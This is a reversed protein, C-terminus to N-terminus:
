LLPAILRLVCQGIRIVKSDRNRIKESVNESVAFMEQFDAKIEDIVSCKYILCGNEFHHYLSRYDFNITGVTALKDDCLCMKAHCFGPRYEYIEVGQEVLVAYFSKTVQNTLKKDPIGPVVIRVDVGRKAALALCRLMEDTIILYPTIIYVYEQAGSILNLYVNEAVREYDLPSDAYPQVYGTEKAGYIEANWYRGYDEDTKKVLNWMELFMGTLSAVADGTLRIGTDKWYGYPHTLNFYEDALNYGGTFGVRGDIVAIKRHDRNNMFLKFVPAVPNFVRCAIGDAECKKVFETNIFVFSGMDDYLIRVEVGEKVKECLVKYMREFAGTEEIAHSEVFIFRKARKMEEIQAEFGKEGSDYYTVDTNGYMPCRANRGIYRVQGAVVPDQAQLKAMVEADQVVNAVLERDIVAQRLRMKKTSDPRGLLLYAVVGLAPFSLIVIIWSIKVTASTKRYFMTLAVVLAVVSMAVAIWTAYATLRLALLVLWLGQVTISLAVFIVRSVSNKMNKKVEVRM